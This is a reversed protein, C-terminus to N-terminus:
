ILQVMSKSHMMDGTSSKIGMSRLQYVEGTRSGRTDAVMTRSDFQEGSYPLVVEYKAGADVLQANIKEMLDSALREAEDPSTGTAYLVDFFYRSFNSLGNIADKELLVAPIDCGGNAAADKACSWAFINALM